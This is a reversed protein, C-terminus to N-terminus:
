THYVAPTVNGLLTLNPFQMHCIMATFYALKQLNQDNEFILKTSDAEVEGFLKTAIIKSLIYRLQTHYVAPTVNGLLTLNSCQM